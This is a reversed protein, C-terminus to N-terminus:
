KHKIFVERRVGKIKQEGKIIEKESEGESWRKSKRTERRKGLQSEQEEHSLFLLSVLQKLSLHHCNQEVEGNAWATFFVTTTYQLFHDRM